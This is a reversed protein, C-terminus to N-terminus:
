ERNAVIKILATIDDVTIKTDGDVDSVAGVEELTARNAVQKILATIDDIDRKNDGTVDGPKATNGSNTGEVEFTAVQQIANTNGYESMFVRYTGASMEKPYAKNIILEGDKEAKVIDMYVLNGGQGNQSGTPKDNEAGSRILVTYLKDKVANKRTITFSPAEGANGPNQTVTVNADKSVLNSVTGSVALATVGVLLVLICLIVFRVSFKRV